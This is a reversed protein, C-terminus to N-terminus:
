RSANPLAHASYTFRARSVNWPIPAGTSTAGSIAPPNPMASRTRPLVSTSILIVVRGTGGTSSHSRCTRPYRSASQIVHQADARQHHVLAPSPDHERAEHLLQERSRAGPRGRRQGGQALLEARGHASFDGREAPVLHRSFPPTPEADVLM